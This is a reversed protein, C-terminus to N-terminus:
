EGPRSPYCFNVNSFKLEGHIKDPKFSGSKIEQEFEILKVFKDIHPYQEFFFNSHWTLRNVLDRSEHFLMFFSIMQASNMLGLNDTNLVLTCVICFSATEYFNNFFEEINRLFVVNKVNSLYRDTADRMDNLHVHEKSFMKITSMMELTEDNIQDVNRRLKDHITNVVIRHNSIYSKIFYFLILVVIMFGGLTVNVM